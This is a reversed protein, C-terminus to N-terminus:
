KAVEAIKDAAKDKALEKATKEEAEAKKISKKVLVGDEKKSDKDYKKKDAAEKDAEELERAIKAGVEEKLDDGDADVGAAKRADELTKTRLISLKANDYAREMDSRKDIKGLKKDEKKQEHRAQHVKQLEEKETEKIVDDAKKVQKVLTVSADEVDNDLTKKMTKQNQVEEHDRVEQEAIKEAEKEDEELMERAVSGAVGGFIQNKAKRALKEVSPGDPKVITRRLARLALDRTSESSEGEKM